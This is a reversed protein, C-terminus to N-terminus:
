NKSDVSYNGDVIHGDSQIKSEKPFKGTGLNSEKKFEFSPVRLNLWIQNSNEFYVRVYRVPNFSQVEHVRLKCM